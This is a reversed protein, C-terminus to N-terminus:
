KKIFINLYESLYDKDIRYILDLVDYLIRDGVNLLELKKLTDKMNSYKKENLIARLRRNWVGEIKDIVNRNTGFLM